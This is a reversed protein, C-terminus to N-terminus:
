DTQNRHWITIADILSSLVLPFIFGDGTSEYLDPYFGFLQLLVSLQQLIPNIQEPQLLPLFQLMDLLYTLLRRFNSFYLLSIRLLLVLNVLIIVLLRFIQFLLILPILVHLALSVLLLELLRRCKHLFLKLLSLFCPDLGPLILHANLFLFFLIQSHILRQRSRLM